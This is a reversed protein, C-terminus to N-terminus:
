GGGKRFPHWHEESCYLVLLPKHNLPQGDFLFGLMQLVDHAFEPIARHHTDSRAVRLWQPDDLREATLYVSVGFLRRPAPLARRQGIPYTAGWDTPHAFHLLGTLWHTINVKIRDVLASGVQANYPRTTLQM